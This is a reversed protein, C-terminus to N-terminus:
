FLEVTCQESTEPHLQFNGGDIFDDFTYIVEGKTAETAGCFIQIQYYDACKDCVQGGKDGFQDDLVADIPTYEDVNYSSPAPWDCESNDPQRNKRDNEGFDGVMAHYYHLTGDKQPGGPTVTCATDPFSANFDEGGHKNAFYGIGDWFIQKFPACRAQVCWGPDACDINSIETGPPASATGSQFTFIGEAGAHQTHTWHGNKPTNDTSPAGIQGGTTVWTVSGDAGKKLTGNTIKGDIADAYTDEVYTYFVREVGYEDIFENVTVSGGTMRCSGAVQEECIVWAPDEDSVEQDTDVYATNLYEGESSGDVSVWPDNCRDPALLGGFGAIPEQNTVNGDSDIDGITFADIVKREGPELDGINVDTFVITEPNTSTPAIDKLTVGTLPIEGCNEVILRYWAALGTVPADGLLDADFWTQGGDVSVEKELDVCPTQDAGVGTLPDQSSNTWVNNWGGSPNYLATLDSIIKLDAREPAEPLTLPFVGKKFLNAGTGGVIDLYAEASATVSSNLTVIEIEGFEFSADYYQLTGPSFVTDLFLVPDDASGPTKDPGYIIEQAFSGFAGAGAVNPGSNYAAQYAGVHAADVEYIKLYSGGEDEELRVSGPINGTDSMVALGGYVGFYYKGDAGNTYYGPQSLANNEPNSDLLNHISTFSFVGWVHGSESGQEQAPHAPLGSNGGALTAYNFDSFTFDSFKVGLAGTNVTIALAISPFCFAVLFAAILVIQKQRM